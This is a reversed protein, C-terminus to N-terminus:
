PVQQIREIIAHGTPTQGSKVDTLRINATWATTIWDATNTDGGGIADSKYVDDGNDWFGSWQLNDSTTQSQWVSLNTQVDTASTTESASVDVASTVGTIRFFINATATTKYTYLRVRLLDTTAFDGAAFTKLAITQAADEGVDGTWFDSYMVKPFMGLVEANNLYAVTNTGVTLITGTANGQTFNGMIQNYDSTALEEIGYKQKATVPQNDNCQNASVITYTSDDICIGSYTDATGVSNTDSVNGTVATRQADELFIGHKDMERVVNGSVTGDVGRYHIGHGDGRLCFNNSILNNRWALGVYIEASENDNCYNGDVVNGEGAVAIGYSDGGADQVTGYCINNSIVNNAVHTIIGATKNTYCTNNSVTNGKTSGNVYIGADGCNSVTCETVINKDSNLGLVIGYDNTDDVWCRQVRSDTVSAKAYIGLISGTNNASNGDVKLDAVVINTYTNTGDGMEICHDDSSDALTIVTAAGAGFLAANSKQIEIATSISYTGEKIYVVGGGTPLDDIAAQITTFDGTGDTAVVNTAVVRSAFAGMSMPM